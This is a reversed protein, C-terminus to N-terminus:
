DVYPSSGHLEWIYNGAGDDNIDVTVKGDATWGDRATASTTYTSLHVSGNYHDNIYSTETFSDTAKVNDYREVNLKIIFDNFRKGGTIGLNGTWSVDATAKVLNSSVREACLFIKVTVDPKHPLAFTRTNTYCARIYTTAHASDAAAIGGVLAVVSTAAGVATRTITRM